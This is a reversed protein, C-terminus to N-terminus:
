GRTGCNPIVDRFALSSPYIPSAFLRSVMKSTEASTPWLIEVLQGSQQRYWLQSNNDLIILGVGADLYRADATIDVQQCPPILGLSYSAKWNFNYTSAFGNDFEIADDAGRVIWGSAPAINFNQMYFASPLSSQPQTIDPWFSVLSASARYRLATADRDSAAQGGLARVSIWVSFCTVITLLVTAIAVYDLKVQRKDSGQKLEEGEPSRLQSQADADVNSPKWLGGSFTWRDM